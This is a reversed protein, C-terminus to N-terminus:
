SLKSVYNAWEQMMLRREPMYTAHNYSARVKNRERHALQREIVDPKYGLENLLTSATARFGHASFRGGWGMRELVRNLTTPSMVADSDRINPFLSPQNKRSTNQLQRLLDLAQTSLPVIHEEGMKMRTAPIRWEKAVWDIEEWRAGRLEGPRVFTLMLLCLAIRAPTAESTALQGALEVLDKTPLAQKHQVKRRKVAGKVAEAPDSECRLTSVGFRFVASCWQRVLTAVTTAGRDAITQVITLVQHSTISKIPMSGIAPFADNGLMTEVQKLYYPTWHSKNKEIWDDAVAKFTNAASTTAVAQSHKRAHAPHTAAKVLRRAADRAERAQQLSTEPYKGIAFVNETDNIRYRYRWYKSGNPHVLLHLGNGDALKYAKPKPKAHRAHADTLRAVM